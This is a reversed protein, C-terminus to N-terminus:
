IAFSAVESWSPTTDGQNRADRTEAARAGAWLDPGIADFTITKDTLDAASAFDASM